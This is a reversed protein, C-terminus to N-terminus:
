PIARRSLSCRTSMLSSGGCSRIRPIPYAGIKLLSPAGRLDPFNEQVYNRAIGSTIVGLSRDRSQARSLQLGIRRLLAVLEAQKDLLLSFRRRANTPLLTWDEGAGCRLKNEGRPERPRVGSRSHSLRTVLRIM